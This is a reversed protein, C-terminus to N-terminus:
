NFLADIEEASKVAEAESTRLRSVEYDINEILHDVQPILRLFASIESETWTFNGAKLTAREPESGVVFAVELQPAKGASGPARFASLTIPSLTASDALTAIKKRFGSVSNAVATERWELFKGKLQKLAEARQKLEELSDASSAIWTKMLPRSSTVTTGLVQCFALKYGFTSGSPAAVRQLTLAPIRSGSSELDYIMLGPISEGRATQALYPEPGALTPDKVRQLPATTTGVMPNNSPAIQPPKTKVFEKSMWAPRVEDVNSLHKSLRSLLAEIARTDRDNRMASDIVRGNANVLLISPQAIQRVNSHHNSFADLFYKDGPKIAADAKIAAYKKSFDQQSRDVSAHIVRLAEPNKAKVKDVAKVLKPTFLKCWGCANSSMYMLYLDSGALDEKTALRPNAAVDTVARNALQEILRGEYGLSKAEGSAVRNAAEVIDTLEPPLMLGQSQHSLYVSGDNGFGTFEVAQGQKLNLGSNFSVPEKLEVASPWVDPDRVIEELSLPKHENANGHDESDHNMTGTADIGHQRLLENAEALADEYSVSSQANCFQAALVALAIRTISRSTKIKNTM